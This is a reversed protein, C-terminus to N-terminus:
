DLGENCAGFNEFFERMEKNMDGGIATCYAGCGSM